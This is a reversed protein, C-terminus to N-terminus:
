EFPKRLERTEINMLEFAGLTLDFKGTDKVQELMSKAIDRIEKQAHVSYRLKIFHYFSRFNFQIDCQIQNGYPLYFRASEKARKRADKPDLGDKEVLSKEIDQLAEHYQEYAYEMFKSYKEVQSADWDEPVFYKDTKLEKYRASEGNISVGIRHKLFHIHSAIETDCLFHIASKEFPTHHGERALHALLKGIRARKEETLDRSTSTWASLAHELDGGYFGVLETKNTNSTAM